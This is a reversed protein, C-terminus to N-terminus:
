DRHKRQEEHRSKLYRTMVMFLVDGLVTIARFVLAVLMGEPMSTSTALMVAIVSERVGIGASAGPMAYGLLWALPYTTFALWLVRGDPRDLVLYALGAILVACVLFFVSYALIIQVIGQRIGAADRRESVGPEFRHIIKPSLYIVVAALVLAAITAQLPSLAFGFSALPELQLLAIWGLVGAAALLGFIEMTTACALAFHSLGLARGQAHRGVFHFINGPLYKSIQTTGYIVFIRRRDPRERGCLCLARYWALSFLFSCAAYIIAALPLYLIERFGPRWDLFWQRYEWLVAAVFLLSLLVLVRGAYLSARQM